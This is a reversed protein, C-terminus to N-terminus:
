AKKAEVKRNAVVQQGLAFLTSVGWYLGVGAPVSATFLAIMVPMIYTMSKTATEMESPKTPADQTQLKAADAKKKKAMSLKLQLFQLAGVILPLVFANVRTLELIGLFHTHVKSLDVNKLPEYLLYANDPNLGGQIVYFLAILVPFQILIPLCSSLPNVKNEKWLQMTESAIKEQNGAYKKKLHELKPQLEQMHRQSEIARQSPVLLVLRILITLLIIAFGLDHGPAISILFVLVNYLPQYFVTRFFMRVSGAEVVTFESTSTVATTSSGTVFEVEVKYRGPNGFLAHNWYGYSVKHKANPAITIDSLLSCSAQTESKEETFKQGDWALVRFPNKPCTSPLTIPASSLNHIELAVEEGSTFESKVAVVSIIATSTGNTPNVPAAKKSSFFQSISFFVLFFLAWTIIKRKNM